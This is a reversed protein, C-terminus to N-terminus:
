YSFEEVSKDIFDGWRAKVTIKKSLGKIAPLFNVYMFTVRNLVSPSDDIRIKVTASEGPKLNIDPQVAIIKYQNNKDDTVSINKIDKNSLMFNNQAHSALNIDIYFISQTDITTRKSKKIIISELEAKDLQMVLHDARRALLPEPAVKILESKKVYEWKGNDKIVVQRGDQTMVYRDKSIYVWAGDDKLLIQRGELIVINESAFALSSTFISTVILISLVPLSLKLKMSNNM